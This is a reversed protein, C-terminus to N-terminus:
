SFFQFEFLNWDKVDWEYAFEAEGEKGLIRPHNLINALSALLNPSSPCMQWILFYPSCTTPTIWLLYKTFFAAVVCFYLGQITTDGFEESSCICLHNLVHVSIWSVCFVIDFEFEPRTLVQTISNVHVGM